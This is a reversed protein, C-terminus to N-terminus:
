LRAYRPAPFAIAYPTKKANHTEEDEDEEDEEDETSFKRRLYVAPKM